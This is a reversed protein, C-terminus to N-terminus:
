RPNVEVRWATDESASIDIAHDHAGSSGPETNNGNPDYIGGALESKPLMPPGSVIHEKDDCPIVVRQAPRDSDIGVVIHASGYCRAYITTGRRPLPGDIPGQESSSGQGASAGFGFTSTAPVDTFAPVEALQPHYSDAAGPVGVDLDHALVHGRGDLVGEIRVRSHIQGTDVEAFGASMSTAARHVVNDTGTVNWYFSRASPDAMVVVVNDGFRDPPEPAQTDRMNLGFVLHPSRRPASVISLIWPSSSEGDKATYGPQGDIVQDTDAFGAVLQHGFEYSDVEFMVAIESGNAVKHAHYWLVTNAAGTTEANVGAEHSWADVAGDLVHQPISPDRRDPWQLAWSPVDRHAFKASDDTRVNLVGFVAGTVAFVAATGLAALQRQRRRAHRRRVGDLRDYPAAPQGAIADALASRLVQEESTM